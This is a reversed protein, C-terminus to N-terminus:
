RLSKEAARKLHRFLISDSPQGVSTLMTPIVLPLFLIEREVANRQLPGCPGDHGRTDVIPVFRLSECTLHASMAQSLLLPGM